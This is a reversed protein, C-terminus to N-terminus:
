SRITHRVALRGFTLGEGLNLGAQYGSGHATMAAVNGVAYLGPIAHGRVHMVRGNPDTVIGARSSDSPHLEVGYFPPEELPGLNPNPSHTLDGM